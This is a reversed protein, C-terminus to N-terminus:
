KPSARSYLLTSMAVKWEQDRSAATLADAATGKRRQVHKLRINTTALPRIRMVCM